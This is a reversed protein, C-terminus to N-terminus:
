DLMGEIPQIYVVRAEIDVETVVQHIAPILVTRGDADAKVVYVDNAPYELVEEIIGLAESSDQLRVVCGVLDDVWYTQEPLSLGEDRKAFLSSGKLGEARERTNVGEVTVLLFKQQRRSRVVVAAHSEDNIYIESGLSFREDPFDTTPYVKFEGTLGHASVVNGVLVM